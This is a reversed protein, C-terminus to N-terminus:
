INKANVMLTGAVTSLVTSLTVGIVPIAFLIAYFTGNGVAMGKNARM